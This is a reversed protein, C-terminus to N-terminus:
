RGLWCNRPYVIDSPARSAFSQQSDHCSINQRLQQENIQEYKRLELQIISCKLSREEIELTSINRFLELCEQLLLKEQAVVEALESLLSAAQDALPLFNALLLKISTTLNSAHRLAISASQTDVEAGEILPVRCVVSHLCEKMTCVAAMHQREMDGWSELSKLQSYLIFNLKMDLKEKHLKVKKQLVSHQLKMLGDWAYLVNIQAQNAINQNVVDARANAFRWQLIRNHLLRLQHGMETMSSGSSVSNSRVLVSSPSSSSKKSKFLNLGSNLLKEVGKTKSPSTPPKMSSSSLQVGKNEVSMTPSGTRGPSLAWQTTATLSHARRIVNKITFKNLKPSKDGSIPNAISSGSTRRRHRLTIENMYKSSVEVGSKRASQGVNPSGMTMGSYIDSCESGSDLADSFGDSTRRSSKQHLANEDVSFRRPAAVNSNSSSSSTCSSSSNSKGPFRFKGTFRMSGGFIPRHNEKANEKPNDLLGFESYRRQRDFILGKREIRDEHGDNGLHDALTDLKKHSSMSSPWLERNPGSDDIKPKRADSFSSIPKRRVPSIPHNTSPLTTTEATTPSSLFRSSVERSKRRRPKHFQDTVVQDNKM